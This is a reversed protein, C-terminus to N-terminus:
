LLEMKSCELLYRKSCSEVLLGNAYIGYNAYYDANELAIHYITYKGPEEYIKARRDVCAPLRYKDDTLYLDNLIIRTDEKEIDEMEDVLISHCGTLVLDEFVEPYKEPTCVYLQNQIRNETAQHTITSRGIRHIPVLGNRLTALLDGSRLYQILRYGKDTL